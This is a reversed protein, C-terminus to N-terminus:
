VHPAAARVPNTLAAHPSAPRPPGHGYAVLEHGVVERGLVDGGFGHRGLRAGCGPGHRQRGAQQGLQGRGAQQDVQGRGVAVDGGRRPQQAAGPDPQPRVELRVLAGLQHPALQPRFATVPDGALGGPLRHRQGRRPEGVDQDRVLYHILGRQVLEPLGRLRGPDGRRGVAQVM